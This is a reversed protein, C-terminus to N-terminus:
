HDGRVSRLFAVLSDQQGPNLRSAERELLSIRQAPPKAHETELGVFFENIPVEMAQGAGWLRSASIRNAGTEYKQVQQFSIALRRALETQSLGRERRFAMIRAGIHVDVPDRARQPEQAPTPHARGPQATPPDDM